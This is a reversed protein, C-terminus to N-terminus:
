VCEDVHCLLLLNHSLSSTASSQLQCAARLCMYRYKVCAVTYSLCIFLLHVVVALFLLFSTKLIYLIRVACVFDCQFMPLAKGEIKRVESTAALKEERDFIKSKELSPYSLGQQSTDKMKDITNNKNKESNQVIFDCAFINKYCCL